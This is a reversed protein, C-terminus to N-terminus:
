YEWDGNKRVGIENVSVWEKGVYPIAGHVHTLSSEVWVSEGDSEEYEEGDVGGTLIGTGDPTMVLQGKFFRRDFEEEYRTEDYGDDRPTMHDYRYKAQEFTITRM